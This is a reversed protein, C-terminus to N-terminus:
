KQKLAKALADLAVPLAEDQKTRPKDRADVDPKIGDNALNEGDPLYFGGVTLNLTGGNSLPEVEQFVGKGFTQQGIVAAARGRDRLAGALIEAASATGGDVLVVMPTTTDIPAGIANYKKEPEVRGHTSVILGDKIFVSSTLVAEDLLGGGNGRLDLILGDVGEDDLKKVEKALQAHVGESFTVLQIVGVKYGDVTEIKSDVVPVDINAREPEVKSQKGTRPNVVTLDVKTGAPGKIKSTALESAMGAISEGDVRTIIDEPRIGVKEAPSGPFVRVVELGAKNEQISMGVGDFNGSLDESLTQADKPSFYHSFDDPLAQVMGSLSGNELVQPDVKQYYGAEIKSQIEARLARDDNVFASRLGSPLSEPHGGLWLGACLVAVLVVLLLLIGLPKKM